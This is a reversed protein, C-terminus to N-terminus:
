AVWDAMVMAPDRTASGEAELTAGAALTNNQEAPAEDETNKGMGADASTATLFAQFLRGSFLMAIAPILLMAAFITTSTSSVFLLLLDGLSFAPLFRPEISFIYGLAFAYSAASLAGVM